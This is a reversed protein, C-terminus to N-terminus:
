EIINATIRLAFNSKKPDNSLVTISQNQRGNRGRSDFTVTITASENAPIVNKDPQTTTCGCSSSVKRLNLDSKGTNKITFVHTVKENKQIDGFDFLSESVEIVPANAMQEVSWKSYDEEITASVSIRNDNSKIGNIILYVQDNIFGWDQKKSADFTAVIAGTAGAPVTAPEVKMKLHEPVKDFTITVPESSTNIFELKETKSTGPDIKTLSLVAAKLRINEMQRPYIDEMTKEKALVNGTIRLVESNPETNATVTVTKNLPGTRGRPDFTAKVFGKGGPQVPNRTWDPTTCGCSAQVNHIVLPQTGTNTFEFSYSVAGGEEKIEGFDHTKKEFSLVAKTNQSNIYSVLGFFAVVLLLKKM